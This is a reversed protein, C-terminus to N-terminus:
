ALASYSPCRWPSIVHSAMTISFQSSPARAFGQFLERLEAVGFGHILFSATVYFGPPARGDYGM